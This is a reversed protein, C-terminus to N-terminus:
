GRIMIFTRDAQFQMSKGRGRNRTIATAQMIVDMQIGAEGEAVSSTEKSVELPFACITRSKDKMQIPISMRNWKNALTLIECNV